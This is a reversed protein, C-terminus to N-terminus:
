RCAEFLEWLMQASRQWSFAQVRELGKARLRLRLDEDRLARDLHAALAVPDRPDFWLAADGAVEPLAGAHAAIVPTGCAMAELVPLGFGEDFSPLTFVLAGAYLGPLSAEPVYGPLIVRAVDAKLGAPRFVAGTEGAIVLFVSPHRPAILEWARLLTALNKRPQRSGVFLVYRPPLGPLPPQDPRFRAPDVGGPVLRVAGPPLSFRATIKEQMYRSDTVVCAVRRVLRPLLRRYWWGFAPAYWEPHELASIDHLTLIQRRVALPGTNAPSWLLEGAEARVRGPLVFQEWLHGRAGSAQRGPRVVRARGDLRRLIERGYREVGTVRRTLFRGNVWVTM